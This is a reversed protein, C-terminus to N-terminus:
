IRDSKVCHIRDQSRPLIERATVWHDRRYSVQLSGFAPPFLIARMQDYIWDVYYDSERNDPYHIQEQKRVTKLSHADPLDIEM